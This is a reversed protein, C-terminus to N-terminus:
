LRVLQEPKLHSTSQQYPLRILRSAKWFRRRSVQRKWASASPLRTSRDLRTSGSESTTLTTTKQTGLDTIIVTAGPVAAGTQDFVTGSIGGLNSQSFIATSCIVVAVITQVLRM